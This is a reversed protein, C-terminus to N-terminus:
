SNLILFQPNLIFFSSHIPTSYISLPLVFFSFMSSGGALAARGASAAFFSTSPSGLRCDGDSVDM